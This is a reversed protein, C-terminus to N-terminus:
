RYGFVEAYIILLVIILGLILACAGFIKITRIMVPPLPEVLHDKLKGTKVLEEYERPRDQKLEEVPVRGTFIVTDMPFKDPRFHTNFFHVTFIFAVALLAEDSHVITAVNIVWGPLFLTFFEPFWLILGTSGIIAVGWFVAFYDFKEWYTWRGYSPRPGLGVFWKVTGILEKLDTMNPIMSETKFLIQSWTKGTKKKEKIQDWIHIGFYSFTIIACVRHIYGASEFGGLLEVIFRAWGLYSFKLCMGTLALGLFSVVVMVHLQSFLRKFRRYELKGASAERIKKHEKRAKLSRPLWLLTHITAMVLTTVLLITMFWFTYFLIPYKTRDHHTAHTLYGAFQRHSGEHCQGCTAVINQRSLTSRQDDTPLINHAGHCDNCKAAGAYGLNSIKGHFTEFYSETVDKHCNGCQAIIDLKFADKDSRSITHSHHCDSCTPLPGDADTNTSAHISQAFQEGIGNHCTACTGAINDRYVTSKPDSKPLEMHPSHCDTCMATVVLGSELLGKGHISMVYEEVIQREGNSIRKGARGEHKHCGGCLAPVHIPFTRSEPDQRTLIDHTGHCDTCVPADQDGRRSLKGHTGQNYVDVVEAHCISCDVKSAVTACPRGKGPTAGTHCQACSVSSHASGHTEESDVFLEITEGNRTMTLDRRGHCEMCEQDAMGEAYFVRRIEHPSHCEVCVPVKDPESEWLEGRVVKKHVEKIQGHCQQCTTAVNDRYISSLTDAHDRVNHATHCDSCVATVTLGQKFLGQGHISQSYHALVSDKPIDYKETVKTGEKHCSGCLFPIKHKAVRSSDSNVSLIDHSGHCDWCRPALEAGAHVAQGHLSGEYEKETNEHCSGCIMAKGPADLQDAPVIDHKGHCNSCRTRGKGHVSSALLEQKEEHCSSCEVPTLEEEHPFDDFGDLDAHCDTCDMEGHISLGFQYSDVFMSIENDFRDLGTLENDEHCSLCTENDAQVSATSILLLLLISPVILSKFYAEVLHKLRM